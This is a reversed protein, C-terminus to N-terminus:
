FLPANRAANYGKLYFTMADYCMFTSKIDLVGVDNSALAFVTNKGKNMKYIYINTPFEFLRLLRELEALKQAITM